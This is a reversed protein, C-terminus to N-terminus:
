VVVVEKRTYQIERIKRIILEPTSLYVFSSHHILSQNPNLLVAFVGREILSQLPVGLGSNTLFSASPPV